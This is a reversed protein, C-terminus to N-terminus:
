SLREESTEADQYSRHRTWRLRSQQEKTLRQPAKTFREHPLHFLLPNNISDNSHYCSKEETMRTSSYDYAVEKPNKCEIMVELYPQM